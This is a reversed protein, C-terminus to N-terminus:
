RFTVGPRRQDRRGRLRDRPRALPAGPRNSEEADAVGPRLRDDAGGGGRARPRVHPGDRRGARDRGPRSGGPRLDASDRARQRRHRDEGGRRGGQAHDDRVTYAAQPKVARYAVALVRFGDASLRRFLADAEAGATSDFPKAAGDLEVAVCARLVSEPAGKTVLLRRGGDEVVVSVRRREFDFPIEDVRTYRGVDPHEHRLIAEDMPSKLGTQYASNLAALRIVAEDDEGRLNVHREVTIQGLTLTGTKDSCLIDMSGFNEIAALRKVIVKKKAMRVAGRALTVSVIM